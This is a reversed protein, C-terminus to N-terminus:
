LTALVEDLEALSRIRPCDLEGNGEYAGGCDILVGKLGAARAGGIDISHIDGVYIAEHAAVGARGLAMEFIRCGPKDCGVLFSDLIFDFRRALDVRALQAEITGYANSIVGLSYGQQRLRDLYAPTDPDFRRWNVIEHIAKRLSIGVSERKETPIGARDMLVRIYEAWFVFDALTPPNGALIQPWLWSDLKKKGACEAAAFDVPVSRYGLDTLVKAIPELQPFILTLGVDFFIAHIEPRQM